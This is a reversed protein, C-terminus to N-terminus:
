MGDLVNCMNRAVSIALNAHTAPNLLKAEGLVTGATVSYSYASNCKSVIFWPPCVFFGDLFFSFGFFVGLFHM